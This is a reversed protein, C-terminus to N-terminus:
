IEDFKTKLRNIEENLYQIDHQLIKKILPETGSVYDIGTNGFRGEFKGSIKAELNKSELLQNISRIQREHKEIESQIEKALKFKEIDM